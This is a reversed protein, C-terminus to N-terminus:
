RLVGVDLDQPVIALYLRGSPITIPQGAADIFVYGESQNARVWTGEVLEGGHLVYVDGSGIVDFTPVDAGASDTYGASKQHVFLLVLTDRTLPVPDADLSPQVEHPGDGRYRAYDGDEFRWIVGGSIPLTVESAPDGGSWAGEAWPATLGQGEIVEFGPSVFLHYPQPRELSQYAVSDAPSIISAGTAEVAGTVFRQGGTAFVVPTFPALLDASVPRLSRVPGVLDPLPGGYLAMFRTLGGEVPTEILLDASDIGVQFGVDAVNDVVVATIGEPTAASPAVTTTVEPEDDPTTGAPEEVAVTTTTEPAAEPEPTEGTTVLAVVTGVLAVALVGTATEWIHGGVWDIARRM